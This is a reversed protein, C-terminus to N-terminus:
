RLRREPSNPLVPPNGFASTAPASRPNEERAARM